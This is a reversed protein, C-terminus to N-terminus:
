NDIGRSVIQEEGLLVGREVLVRQGELPERAGLFDIAVVSILLFHVLTESIYAFKRAVESLSNDSADFVDTAM